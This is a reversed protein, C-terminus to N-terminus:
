LEFEHTCYTGYCRVCGFKYYGVVNKYHSPSSIWGKVMGKDTTFGRALNEGRAKKGDVYNWFGKHSWDSQIEVVRRSAIYCTNTNEYLPNLGHTVRYENILNEVNGQNLISASCYLLVLTYLIKM